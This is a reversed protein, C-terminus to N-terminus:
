PNPTPEPTPVETGPGYQYKAQWPLYHTNFTDDHIISGDRSVTRTISVDAGAVAWDVQKIEDKQLDPNEEYLPAPPEVVNGIWLGGM